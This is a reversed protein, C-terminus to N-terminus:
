MSLCAVCPQHCLYLFFSLDMSFRIELDWTEYHTGFSGRSSLGLLGLGESDHFTLAKQLGLAKCINKVHKRAVSDTLPVWKRQRPIVFVPSNSDGPFAQLLTRLATVLCLSSHQLDPLPITAFENRNQMTKSWIVVLVAGQQGFIVDGKALQRTHDFTSISHPLLNSLRMFSFFAVLYLPKFVVLFSFKECQNVIKQLLDIDLSLM